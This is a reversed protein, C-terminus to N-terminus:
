GAPAPMPSLVPTRRRIIGPRPPCPSSCPRCVTGPAEAMNEVYPVVALRGEASASAALPEGELEATIAEFHPIGTQWLLALEGIRLLHALAERTATNLTASGQSGGTVLLLRGAPRLGFRARATEPETKEIRRVPIGTCVIEPRRSLHPRAEEHTIFIMRSCHDLLRITAGPYADLALQTVPIGLLRAALLAPGSIFGGTGFAVQPRHRLLAALSQLFGGLTRLPFLLNRLVERRHLGETMLTVFPRGADGLVKEELGRRSVAFRAEIDNGRCELEEVVALAPYLHGGTGGAAVWVRM